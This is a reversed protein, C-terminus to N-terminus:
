LHRGIRATIPMRSPDLPVGTAGTFIEALRRELRNVEEQNGNATAVAIAHVARAMDGIESCLSEVHGEIAQSIMTDPVGNSQAYIVSELLRFLYKSADSPAQPFTQSLNRIDFGINTLSAKGAMKEFFRKFM